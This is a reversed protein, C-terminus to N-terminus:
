PPQSCPARGGSDTCTSISHSETLFFVASVSAQTESFDQWLWHIPPESGIWRNHQSYWTLIYPLVHIMTVGMCIQFLPLHPRDSYNLSRKEMLDVAAEANNLIIMKRHFVCLLM